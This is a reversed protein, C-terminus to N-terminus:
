KIQFMEVFEKSGYYNLGGDVTYKINKRNKLAWLFLWNLVSSVMKVGTEIIDYYEVERSTPGVPGVPTSGTKIKRIIINSLDPKFWM